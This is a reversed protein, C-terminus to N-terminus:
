KDKAPGPATLAARFGTHCLSTDPTSKMRTGPLYGLCYVDSCLFSGGRMVRKIAGPEMPDYSTDPGCPDVARQKPDGYGHPHYLDSCWEWVNGSMDWLGFGNAPFQKVPATTRYGDAASNVTPFTGQWINAMLRGEVKPENGWVYRNRDLGGRAAFEWEAETPLRAGRWECYATADRWSVHVVPHDDKGAISSGPGDPARWCAGPVFEWWRWFERLDVAEAPPRFVLSGAVLADPPVGPLEEQTPTREADTVYGTASVFAAFKANTVETADLWFGTVAVSHLPADPDGQQSGLVAEGGAIWVMDDTPAAQQAVSPSLPGLLTAVLAHRLATVAAM